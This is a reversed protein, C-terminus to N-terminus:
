YTISRLKVKMDSLSTARDLLTALNKTGPLETLQQRLADDLSMRRWFLPDLVSCCHHIYQLNGILSGLYDM